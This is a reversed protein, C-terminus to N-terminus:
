YDLGTMEMLKWFLKTTYSYLFQLIGTVSYCNKYQM